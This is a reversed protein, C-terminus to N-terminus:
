NITMGGVTVDDWDSVSPAFYIKDLTFTLTYHYWKGMEWGTIEAGNGDDAAVKTGKLKFEATQPLYTDTAGDKYKIGYSVSIKVDDTFDQPLLLMTAGTKALTTTPAQGNESSLVTYTTPMDQGTWAATARETATGNTYGENFTGKSSANELKIGYVKIADSGYNVDTQIKFDAAALAHNFVIDVGDFNGSTGTSSTKDFARNSYMVDVQDAANTISYDKIQIGTKADVSIAGTLTAPYYASFTLKGNKPWFYTSEPLWSKEKPTTQKETYKCLVDNMYTTYAEAPNFSTITNGQYWGYVRFDGTDNTPLATGDVPSSKTQTATFPTFSIPTEEQGNSFTENKTCSVMAAVALGALLLLKKMHHFFNFHKYNNIKNNDAKRDEPNRSKRSEIGQEGTKRNEATRMDTEKNEGKRNEGSRCECPFPELQPIWGPTHM